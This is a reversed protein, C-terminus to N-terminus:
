KEDKDVLWICLGPMDKNPGFGHHRFSMPPESFADEDDGFNKIKYNQAIWFPTDTCWGTWLPEDDADDTTWYAVHIGDIVALFKDLDLEANRYTKM